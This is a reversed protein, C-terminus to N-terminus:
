TVTRSKQPSMDAISLGKFARVIDEKTAIDRICGDNACLPPPVGTEVAKTSSITIDSVVLIGPATMAGGATTIGANRASITFISSRLTPSKMRLPLM